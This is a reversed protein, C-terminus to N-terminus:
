QDETPLGVGAALADGLGATQAARALTATQRHWTRIPVAPYGGVTAGQPVDRIVGSGGAVRARSGITLHGAVGVKGGLVVYDGLVTSGSIGSLGAMICRRGIRVNHGVHCLNDIWTGAGIVTDHGSGRDVTTNAGIEVDDEILVCGVQPIKIFGKPDPVFGFGEQGIRAGPYISVRAGVHCHSLTAGAGIRTDDGVVVGAGIVANAAVSCRAGLEARDEIVAGPAVACGAGLQATPAVHAAPSVGPTPAVPPHFMAGATAFVRYPSESILLVAGAPAAARNRPHMAIAGARSAGLADRYKPRDFYAIDARGAAELPAVGTLPRAGDGVVEAGCRDAIEAATFPGRTLFFRPDAM